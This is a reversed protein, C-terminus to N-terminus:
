DVRFISVLNTQIQVSTAVSLRFATRIFYQQGTYCSAIRLAYILRQLPQVIHQLCQSQQLCEIHATCYCYYYNLLFM